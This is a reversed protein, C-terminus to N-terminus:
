MKISCKEGSGNEVRMDKARIKEKNANKNAYKNSFTGMVLNLVVEVKLRM